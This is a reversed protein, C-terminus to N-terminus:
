APSTMSGDGRQESLWRRLVEVKVETTNPLAVGVEPPPAVFADMVLRSGDGFELVGAQFVKRGNWPSSMPWRGWRWRRVEVRVASIRSPDVRVTRWHNRVTVGSRDCVVRARASRVGAAAHGFGVAGLLVGIILGGPRAVLAVTGGVVGLVVVWWSVVRAWVAARFILRGDVFKVGLVGAEAGTLRFM